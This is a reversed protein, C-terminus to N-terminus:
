GPIDFGAESAHGCASTTKLINSAQKPIAKTTSTVILNTPSLVSKKQDHQFQNSRRTTTIHSELVMNAPMNGTSGSVIRM